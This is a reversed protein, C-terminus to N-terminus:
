RNGSFTGTYAAKASVTYPTLCARMFSSTSRQATDTSTSLLTLIVGFSRRTHVTTIINLYLGLHDLEDDCQIVESGFAQMRQEVYHLFILPNEFIDAYVRLDDLSITWVLADGVDIGVKRLHQIQAALETLGDLTVPCITICRFDSKRLEGM